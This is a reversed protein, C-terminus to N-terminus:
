CAPNSATFGAEIHRGAHSFAAANRCQEEIQGDVQHHSLCCSVLSTM